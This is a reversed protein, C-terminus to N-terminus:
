CITKEGSWFGSMLSEAHAQIAMWDVKGSLKGGKHGIGLRVLTLFVEKTEMKDRKFQAQLMLKSSM